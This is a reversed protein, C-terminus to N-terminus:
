HLWIYIWFDGVGRERRIMMIFSKRLKLKWKLRSGTKNQELAMRRPDPSSRRSGTRWRCSATGWRRRSWGCSRQGRDSGESAWCLLDSPLAWRQMVEKAKTKLWIHWLLIVNLHIAEPTVKECHRLWVTKMLTALGLGRSVYSHCVFHYGRKMKQSLNSYISRTKSVTVSM